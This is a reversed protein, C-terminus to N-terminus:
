QLIEVRIEKKLRAIDGARARGPGEALCNAAGCAAALRLSEAAELGQHEAIAFGALTADGSGVSSRVALQPVKAFLVKDESTSRWILGDAGLSIAGAKAGASLIAMLASEASRPGNIACGSLWEAEQQNPKVFDPRAKLAHRLPEVSTDVFVRCGCQHGLEILTAYYDEPVGPPLSGSLIATMKGASRRLALEFADRLRELEERTVPQGPELIETVTGENELIELNTRTANATAVAEARISMGNLGEVLATGTPGGAFGLWLPDAGLTRLVMAVHAAKGGPAPTVEMARNVRGHQLRELRLRKDIAPNLSVCLFM